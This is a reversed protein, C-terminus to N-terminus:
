SKRAEEEVLYKTIDEPQKGKIADFMTSLNNRSIMNSKYLIYLVYMVTKSSIVDTVTKTPISTETSTKTTNTKEMTKSRKNEAQRATVIQVGHMAM